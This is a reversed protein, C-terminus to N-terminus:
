QVTNFIFNAWRITTSTVSNRDDLPYMNGWKDESQTYVSTKKCTSVKYNVAQSSLSCWLYICFQMSSLWMHKHYIVSLRDTLINSSRALMNISRKSDRLSGHSYEKWFKQKYQFPAEEEVLPPGLDIHGNKSL